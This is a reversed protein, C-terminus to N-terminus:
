EEPNVQKQLIENMDVADSVDPVTFPVDLDYIEYFASQNMAMDMNVVEDSQTVEPPIQMNIRIDSDLQMYDTLFNDQNVWVSYMIDAKMNKFMQTLVQNIATDETQPLPVQKLADQVLRSVSDTGMTVNIVWYSHSNKEQDNSFSMIVGAEKAQKLSSLPDQSGAQEMLAKIDMGPISMKVWGQGPMTIYMGEENLLMESDMAELGTDVAGEPLDVQTSMKGYIMVPKNQVAMDMNMKMDMKEKKAPEQSDNIEMQQKIDVKAKYTNYQALTEGAKVLMEEANMGQRQEQYNITVTQTQGQWDVKVKFADMVARLPVMVEGNDRRPILPLNVKEGGNLSATASGLTLTLTQGNKIININDGSTTIDAGLIRGVLYVPVLTRGEEIQPQVTPQYSKGNINLNVAALTPTALLFVLWFTTLVILGKRLRIQM